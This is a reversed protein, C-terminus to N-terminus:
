RREKGGRPSPSAALATSQRLVLSTRLNYETGHASPADRQVEKLLAHFALRALETQSMQVTTLPPLVFQALRIDDFGVLSLAEPIRIGEEYSTRMVGIATMDNSCLVATPRSSKGLLEHFAKMGGEITHDGEVILDKHAPIGIESLSALFAEKRAVASKLNLPGSIFAIKQHRLAALHQV